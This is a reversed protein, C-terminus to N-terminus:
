FLDTDMVINQLIPCMFARTGAMQTIFQGIQVAFTQIWVPM